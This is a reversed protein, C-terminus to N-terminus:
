YPAQRFSSSGSWCSKKRVEKKVNETEAVRKMAMRKTKEVLIQLPDVESTTLFNMRVQAQRWWQSKDLNAIDSPVSFLSDIFNDDIEKLQSANSEVADVNEEGMLATTSSMPTTETSAGRLSDEMINRKFVDLTCSRTADSMSTQCFTTFLEQEELLAKLKEFSIKSKPLVKNNKMSDLFQTWLNMLLKLERKVPLQNREMAVDQAKLLTLTVVKM